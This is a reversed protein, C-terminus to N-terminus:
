PRADDYEIAMLILTFMSTLWGVTLTYAYQPVKKGVSRVTASSRHSGKQKIAQKRASM